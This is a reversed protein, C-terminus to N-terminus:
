FTSVECLCGSRFSFPNLRECRRGGTRSSLPSNVRKTDIRWRGKLPPPTSIPYIYSVVFYLEYRKLIPPKRIYGSLFSLFPFLPIEVWCFGVLKTSGQSFRERALWFCRCAAITFYHFTFIIYSMRVPLEQNSDWFCIQREWLNFFNTETKECRSTRYVYHMWASLFVFTKKWDFPALIVRGKIILLRGGASCKTKFITSVLPRKRM